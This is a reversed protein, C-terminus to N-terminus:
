KAGKFKNRTGISQWYCMDCGTCWGQNNECRLCPQIAILTSLLKQALQFEDKYDTLDISGRYVNAERRKRYAIEMNMGQEKESMSDFDEPLEITWNKMTSNKM